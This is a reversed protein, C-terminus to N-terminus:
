YALSLPFNNLKWTNFKMEPFYVFMNVSYKYFCYFLEHLVSGASGSGLYIVLLRIGM